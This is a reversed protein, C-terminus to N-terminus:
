TGISIWKTGQVDPPEKRAENLKWPRTGGPLGLPSVGPWSGQVAWM